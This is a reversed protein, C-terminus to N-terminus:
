LHRCRWCQLFKSIPLPLHLSNVIGVCTTVYLERETHAVFLGIVHLKSELMGQSRMLKIIYLRQSCISLIYSVHEDFNLNGSLVVGLLRAIKIQDINDVASPM